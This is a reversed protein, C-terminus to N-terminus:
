KKEGWYSLLDKLWTDVLHGDYGGKYSERQIGWQTGYIKTYYSSGFLDAKWGKSSVKDSKTSFQRGFVGAPNNFDGPQHPSLYDVFEILNAYKADKALVTAIGAAYAAGQSHGVIKITEDKKLTIDGSEFKKLLQQGALEGEKFRASATAMPTLSGNTYLANDDKYHAMYAKDVGDWYSFTKANNRPGDSYFNRDPAYYQPNQITKWKTPWLGGRWRTWEYPQTITKNGHGFWHNLMFGNAFIFLNGDIDVTNVPCNGGYNYPTLGFYTESENDIVHWRGIQQNYMRAGYDHWELGSGDAFEGNQLEKDNYKYKNQLRGSGSTSLPHILLGFPYYHNEEMIPGENTVIVLNDFYVAGELKGSLPSFSAEENSLYVLFYGAKTAEIDNQVLNKWEPEKADMEGVRLAGGKIFQMTTDMLVYNLYARPRNSPTQQDRDTQTFQQLANNNSYPSNVLNQQIVNGAKDGGAVANGIGLIGSLLNNFIDERLSKSNNKNAQPRYYYQVGINFKDGANVKLIKYPVKGNNSGPKLLSCKKNGPDKDQLEVPLPNRTPQLVDEGFLEKEKAIDEKTVKETPVNEFTAKYQFTPSPTPQETLVMRINGLHDKVFWDYEYALTNNPQTAYRIRGEETAIQNLGTGFGGGFIFGGVYNTLTITPNPTTTKDTVTKRYKNGLADYTFEIDGKEPGIADGLNTVSHIYDPLNLYNYRIGENGGFKNFVLTKNWDIVMNGNYDYNYDQSSQGIGSGPGSKGMGGETFDGLTSSEANTPSADNVAMLKNSYGGNFYTYSMIDIQSIATGNVGMQNMSLINGNEDYRIMGGDNGSVSFDKETNLWFNNKYETFDAKKLRNTNDYTYDYKRKIGAGSPLPQWTGLADRGAKGASAWVMSGINGNLQPNPLIGGSTLTNYALEYGFYRQNTPLINDNLFNMNVGRLWGRINYTYDQKNECITGSGTTKKKLRGLMDYENTVILKTVPTPGNLHSVTKYINTIKGEIDLENKTVVSWQVCNICPDVMEQNGLLKGTFDYQNTVVHTIYNFVQPVGMTTQKTTQLPRYEKDFYNVTYLYQGVNPYDHMNYDMVRAKTATLKGAVTVNQTADAPYDGSSTAQGTPYPFTYGSFFAASGTNGVTNQYNDYFNVTLIVMKNPIFTPRNSIVLNDVLITYVQNGNMIDQDVQNQLAARNNVSYTFATVLPRNLYDYMTLLWQKADGYYALMNGDQTLILRDRKDYVMNVPLAGPVHKTILRGRDDYDYWFCLEDIIPQTLVWNNGPNRLYEVARPPLVYRLRNLNDYVYYTCLWGEHPDSTFTHALQVKKLITNGSKDKYEIVQKGHEDYTITKVLDGLQYTYGSIVPIVPNATYNLEWSKVNDSAPDYIKLENKVSVESATGATGAWANGPAFTKEVRNLPSLEYVNLSFPKNDPLDNPLTAPNYNQYFSLQETEWGPRYAGTGTAPAAYPLYEKIVRGLPDYAKPMIIDTGLEKANMLVTQESRGLGDLYEVKVVKSQPAVANVAAATKIGPQKLETTAVFNKTTSQAKIITANTFVVIILFVIKKVLTNKKLLYM